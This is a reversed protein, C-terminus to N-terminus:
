ERRKRPNSIWFFFFIPPWVKLWITVLGDTMHQCRAFVFRFRNRRQCIVKTKRNFIAESKGFNNYSFLLLRAKHLVLHVFTVTKHRSKRFAFADIRLARSSYQENTANLSLFSFTGYYGFWQSSFVRSLFTTHLPAPLNRYFGVIRGQCEHAFPRMERWLCNVLVVLLRLKHLPM